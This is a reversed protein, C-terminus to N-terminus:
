TLEDNVITGSKGCDCCAGDGDRWHECHRGRSKRRAKPCPDDNRGAEYGEEWVAALAREGHGGYPSKTLKMGM